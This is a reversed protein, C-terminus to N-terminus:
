PGRWRNNSPVSKWPWGDLLLQTHVVQVAVGDRVLVARYGGDKNTTHFFVYYADSPCQCATIAFAHAELTGKRWNVLDARDAVPDLVEVNEVPEDSPHGAATYGHRAVVADASGVAAIELANLEGAQPLACGALSTVLFAAGLLRMAM